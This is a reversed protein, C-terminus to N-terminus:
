LGDGSYEVNTVRGRILLDEAGFYDITMNEGTVTLLGERTRVRIRGTEYSFLGRHGELLVDERGTIVVRPQGRTVEPPFLGNVRM